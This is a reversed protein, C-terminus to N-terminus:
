EVDDGIEFNRLGLFRLGGENFFTGDSLFYTDEKVHDKFFMLMQRKIQQQVRESLESFKFIKIKIIAEKM